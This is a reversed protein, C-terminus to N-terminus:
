VTAWWCCRVDRSQWATRSSSWRIDSGLSRWQRRRHPVRQAIRSRRRARRRRIRFGAISCPIPKAVMLFIDAQPFLQKIEPAAHSYAAAADGRSFAGARRPDREARPSVDRRRVGTSTSLGLLVAFLLVVARM